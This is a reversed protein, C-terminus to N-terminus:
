SCQLVVSKEFKYIFYAAGGGHPALSIAEYSQELTVPLTAADCGKAEVLVSTARKADAPRLNSTPHSSHSWWHLNSDWSGRTEPTIKVIPTGASDLFTAAAEGTIKAPRRRPTDAPKMPAIRASSFIVGVPTPSM